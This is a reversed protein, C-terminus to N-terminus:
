RGDPLPRAGVSPPSARPPRTSARRFEAVARRVADRREWHVIHGADEVVVLTARPLCRAMAEGVVPPFLSDRGGWVLGVPLDLRALEEAGYAEEPHVTALVERVARSRYALYVALRAPRAWWPPAAYLARWVGASDAFREVRVMRELRSWDQDRFGGPVVLLLRHALGPHGLAARVAIWGGLSVGALTVPRGEFCARAVGAALDAAESVTPAPRPGRSGGLESLEPLVLDCDRALDPLLPLFTASTAGLGHLLLWPEGGPVGGRRIRLDWGEIRLRESRLGRLRLATATGLASLRSLV